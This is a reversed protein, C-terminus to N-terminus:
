VREPYCISSFFIFYVNPACQSQSDYMKCEEEVMRKVELKPSEECLGCEYEEYRKKRNKVYEEAMRKSKCDISRSKLWNKEAVQCIKWRWGKRTKQSQGCNVFDSENVLKTKPRTTIRPSRDFIEPEHINKYKSITCEHDNSIAMWEFSDVSMYTLQIEM